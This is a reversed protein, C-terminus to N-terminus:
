VCNVMMSSMKCDRKTFELVSPHQLMTLHQLVRPHQLVNPHLAASWILALFCAYGRWMAPRWFQDYSLCGSSSLLHQLVSPHLTTSWWIWLNSCSVFISVDCLQTDSVVMVLAGVPPYCTLPNYKLHRFLLFPDSFLASNASTSSLASLGGNQPFCNQAM